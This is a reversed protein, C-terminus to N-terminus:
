ESPKGLEEAIGEQTNNAGMPKRSQWLLSLGILLIAEVYGPIFFPKTPIHLLSAAEGTLIQVISYFPSQAFALAVAGVPHWVKKWLSYVALILLIPIGLNIMHGVAMAGAVSSSHQRGSMWYCDWWVTWYLLSVGTGFLWWNFLSAKTMRKM